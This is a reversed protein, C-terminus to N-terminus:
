QCITIESANIYAEATHHIHCLHQYYNLVIYYNDCTPVCTYHYLPYCTCLSSTM